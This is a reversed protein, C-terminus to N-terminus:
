QESLLGGISILPADPLKCTVRVDRLEGGGAAAAAAAAAPRVPNVALKLKTVPVYQETELNSVYISRLSTLLYCVCACVCVCGLAQSYVTRLLVLQMCAFPLVHSSKPRKFYSGLYCCRPSNFRQDM